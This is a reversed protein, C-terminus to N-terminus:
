KGSLSRVAKTGKILMFVSVASILLFVGTGVCNGMILRFRESDGFASIMASQLSYVSIGAAALSLAKSALLIPDSRKRYRIVNRAATIAAYFTYLAVAYIMYGPYSVVHGKYITVFHIGLLALELFLIVVASFIYRKWKQLLSVKRRGRLLSFRILSLTLYYFALTGSWLSRAAIGNAAQVLAYGLNVAFSLRLIDKAPLRARSM